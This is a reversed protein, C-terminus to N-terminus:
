QLLRRAPRWAARPTVEPGDRGLGLSKEGFLWLFTRETCIQVQGLGKWLSRTLCVIQSKSAILAKSVRDVCTQRELSVEKRRDDGWMSMGGTKKDGLGDPAKGNGQKAGTREGAKFPEM